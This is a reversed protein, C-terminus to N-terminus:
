EGFWQAKWGRLMGIERSQASVIDKALQLLEPRQSKKFVEEAMAVAEEHHMIMGDIFAKEFEPGERGELSRMASHVDGSRESVQGAFWYGGALGIVLAIGALIVINKNM